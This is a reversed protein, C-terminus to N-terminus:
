RLDAFIETVERIFAANEEPLGATIRLASQGKFHRVSIGRDRLKEWISLPAEDSPFKMYIFNTDPEPLEFGIVGSYPILEAYMRATELKVTEAKERFEGFRKLAAAGFAQSVLNVNYPSKVKKIARILGTNGVAFGLRLGALGLKSLTRLVILNPSSDLIDTKMVSEDSRAFDMYAEDVVVLVGIDAARRVLDLIVDRPCIVSTPNCPNSFIILKAGSRGAEFLVADFDITIGDPKRYIEPKAEALGSYFGYMSFDPSLTLAADGKSLFSGCIISILEDSGNGCVIHDPPLDYAKAYAGIIDAAYPDPYRNFEMPSILGEFDKRLADSIQYPSENADLRIPLIETNPLYEELRRIKDSLFDNM